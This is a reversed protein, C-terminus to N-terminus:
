ITLGGRGMNGPLVHILPPLPLLGPLDGEVEKVWIEIDRGSGGCEGEGTELTLM